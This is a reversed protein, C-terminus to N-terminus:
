GDGAVFWSPLQEHLEAKPLIDKIYHPAPLADETHRASSNAEPPM